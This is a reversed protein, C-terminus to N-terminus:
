KRDHMIRVANSAKRKSLQKGELNQTLSNAKEVLAASMGPGGKVIGQSQLESMSPRKELAHDLTDARMRRELQEAKTQGNRRQNEELDAILMDTEFAEEPRALEGSDLGLALGDTVTTAATMTVLLTMSVTAVLITKTM